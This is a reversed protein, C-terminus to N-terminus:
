NQGKERSPELSSDPPWQMYLTVDERPSTVCSDDLTECRDVKPKDQLLEDSIVNVHACAHTTDTKTVEEVCFLRGTSSTCALASATATAEIEVGILVSVM